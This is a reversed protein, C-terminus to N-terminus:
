RAAGGRRRLVISAVLVAGSLKKRKGGVQRIGVNFVLTESGAREPGEFPRWRGHGRCLGKPQM